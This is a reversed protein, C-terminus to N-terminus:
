PCAKYSATHECASLETAVGQDGQSEMWAFLQTSLRDITPKRTAQGALNTLEYPDDIINYLEVPPRNIYAQIRNQAWKDGAEARKQWDGLTGRYSSRNVTLLNSFDNESLLNLILKYRTDRISRIPYDSGEHINRTTHVGYAYENHKQTTNELVGLFSTGDLGDPIEGGVADILTPVVDVYQVIADNHTNPKIHEPWRVIFATKLGTDYTTYKAFPMGAGQESTFIFLTNTKTQTRELLTDVAGVENDLDNVEAYYKMLENRMAPTDVLFPPVNLRNAPFLSLDGRNYPGHPNHSAIILFFPEKADRSIFEEVEDLSFTADGDAGKTGESLYEFPYVSRPSIHRKGALGVRYGLEQFYHAASLTGVDADSHQPYAGSRVPFLGTYLQQRTPSCLATATFASTLMLGESALRDIHPTNANKPTFDYFRDYVGIDFWNTDDSLMIIINPKSTEPMVIKNFAGAHAQLHFILISTFALAFGVINKM